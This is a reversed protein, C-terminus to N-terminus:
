GGFPFGVAHSGIGDFNDWWLREVNLDLRKAISEIESKTILKKYYGFWLFDRNKMVINYLEDIEGNSYVRMLSTLFYKVKGVYLELIYRGKETVRYGTKTYMGRWSTSRTEIYEKESLESISLELQAKVISLNESLDNFSPNTGDNNLEEITSLIRM